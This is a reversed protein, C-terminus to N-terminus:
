VWSVVQHEAKFVKEWQESMTSRVQKENNLGNYSNERVNEVKSGPNCSSGIALLSHAETVTSNCYNTGEQRKTERPVRPM